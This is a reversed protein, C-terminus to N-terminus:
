PLNMVSKLDARDTPDLKAPDFKAGLALSRCRQSEAPKKAKWYARALHFYTAAVTERRSDKNPDGDPTKQLDGVMLAVAKELDVIARDFRGLREEIVGRTDLHQALEGERRIADEAYPLAEAPRDLGESLTWAMNNLFQVNTPYLELARRYCSLEDEYREQIHYITALLVPITYDKPAKAQARAGLDLVKNLFVPDDRRVIAAATAFRVSEGASGAALAKECAALALDPEKRVFYVRALAWSDAPWRDAIDKAVRLSAVSDGFKIMRDIVQMGILEARPEKSSRNYLVELEAVAEGKKDRAMLIWSNSLPIQPSGPELSSLQDLYRQAEDPHKARSLAEIALVLAVVNPRAQDEAVPRIADWAQDFRNTDLMAQSLKIRTEIALRSSIPLDNVLSLFAQVADERRRVDPSRALLTARMLRDEPTDGSASSGPAILAWAEGWATPDPRTTLRLALARAAWSNLPDLKLVHRLVPEVLGDQDTEEYFKVLFRLTALDDPKADVAKKFADKANPLDKGVWYCQALFLDPRDTKCERRAQKITRDVDTPTRRLAQFAVLNLWASPDNPKEKVLIRLSEEAQDPEHNRDLMLAFRVRSAVDDPREEAMKATLYEARDKDNLKSSAETALRDFEATLGPRQRAEVEKDFDRKLSALEEFRKSRMYLDILKPLAPSIIDDKLAAQYARIAAETDNNYEKVMGDLLHGFRFTPYERRLKKVEEGAEFRRDAPPPGPRNPDTRLLSLVRAAIGYPERDGGIAKLADLGLKAAREDNDVQAMALLALAPGPISPVLKAWEAYAAIAGNRDGLERLLEGRAQALEARENAPIGSSDRELVDRAALGKGAKMLLRAKAIRFKGHDGANKPLAGQDLTQNAEVRRNLRDLGQALNIWVDVEKRAEGKVARALSEVAQDLKGSVALYEARYTPLNPNTPSVAELQKFLEEVELMRKPDASPRAALGLIRLRISELLLFPERPSDALARDVEDIAEDPHRKQLHRAIQLRPASASPSASAANRFALLAAENDGMLECCRGLALLVDAKYMLNVVDKIKELKKRADYLKGYGIDFLAELFKGIGNKDGQSLQNYRQRLPEAESYRSMQVLNFALRWTLEQDSGGVLLLGKRWQDIADAPHQEAFEMFGRLIKVRLDDQKAAPIADLQQRAEMTQPPRRSLAVQAITLRVDVNEPALKLVNNLDAEAEKQRNSAIYARYRVLLAEVSKPNANIMAELVGDATRQDKTWSVYLNALRESSQLDHPDLEIATRYHQITKLRLDEVDGQSANQGAKTSSNQRLGSQGRYESIQGEYARALLRHAAPDAYKGAVADDVLQKAISAAATYRSNVREADPESSNEAFRKLDDSYRIYLEVLKRRTELRGPGKPDLRCLQDLAKAAELIQTQPLDVESLIKTKAELVQVDEPDRVLYRDLHRLALDIDGNKRALEAQALATNRVSQAAIINYGFLVVLLIVIVAGLWAVHKWHIRQIRSTGLEDQIKTVLNRAVPFEM